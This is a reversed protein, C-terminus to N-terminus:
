KNNDQMCFPCIYDSIAAEIYPVQELMTCKLHFWRVCKDCGINKESDDEVDSILDEYCQSCQLVEKKSTSKVVTRKKKIRKEKEKAKRDKEEAKLQRKQSKEMELNEKDQDKKQYYARWAKSSIASPLKPGIKKDKPAPPEPFHLHKEFIDDFSMDNQTQSIELESFPLVSIDDLSIYSGPQPLSINAADTILETTLININPSSCSAPAPPTITDINPNCSPAQLTFIDINSSFNSPNNLSSCATTQPVIGPEDFNLNDPTVACNTETVLDELISSSQNSTASTRPTKSKSRRNEIFKARAKEIEELIPTVEINRSALDTQILSIVKLAADFDRAYVTKARNSTPSILKQLDKVCKTYDVNNENLPYLGCKRFGNKITEDLDILTFTEKLIECFNLKTITKNINEPRVQWNRVTNKWKQKLPRFVSVDAPQLMHTTNAPLAYLIIGNQDCFESLSYTMHSKHGDIFLIVPKKIGSKAIWDNLDNCVYEYFVESKMWGSESRGLVWSEPMNDIIAKPPRVYPFIVLPPCLKGSATFVVLVTINEKENNQKIVYVNKYGRPGLVKGSKPCLSFGTEDGNFIRDPEEFIDLAAISAMYDRLEKFWSRIRTETVAARANNIGEPVRISIEPHRKLFNHYWTDGPKGEKFPNKIGSDRIIKSVSEILDQKTLPFGCKAMNILWKSLKEEIERGLVPDPGVKPM